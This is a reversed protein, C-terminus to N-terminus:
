HHRGHNMAEELLPDGLPLLPAQKLQHFFMFLWVGGVGIPAALDLWHVSLHVAADGHVEPGRLFFLDVLRIAIIYYAILRIRAFNKKTRRSLLIAFPLAFQFLILFWALYGWGGETRRKYWGIEEPLNASWTILFQSFNFYAWLMTFAFMLKGLDHLHKPTLIDSFPKVKSLAILMAIMFAFTSLGHQGVFLIGYITSFWHADLSMMWDITAFSMTAMYLLLGPGAIKQLKSYSPETQSDMKRSWGTLMMTWLIWIAFYIAARMWFGPLNLYAIKQSLVPDKAVIDAHSWEYLYGAGFGIPLFLIVMLPITRASAELLRRTVIGWHGGTLYQLNLLAFSGLAMGLWLMFAILYSRFFQAPNMVYGAACFALGIAGAGIARSKWADIKAYTEAPTAPSITTATSM